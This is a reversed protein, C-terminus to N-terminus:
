GNKTEKNERIEIFKKLSDPFIYTVSEFVVGDLCGDELWIEVTAIGVNFMVAVKEITPMISELFKEDFVDADELHNEVIIAILDRGKM